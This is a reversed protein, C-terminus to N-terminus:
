IKSYTNAKSKTSTKYQLVLFTKVYLSQILFDNSESKTSIKIKIGM